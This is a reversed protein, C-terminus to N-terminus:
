IIDFLNTLLYNAKEDEFYIDNSYYIKFLYKYVNTERLRKMDYYNPQGNVDLIEYTIDDMIRKDRYEVFLKFGKRNYINITKNNFTLRFFLEDTKEKVSYQVVKTVLLKNSYHYDHYDTGMTLKYLPTDKQVEMHKDSDVCYECLIGRTSCHYYKDFTPIKFFEFYPNFLDQNNGIIFCRYDKRDRMITSVFELFAITENKLYRYTGKPLIIAEDYIIDEVDPFDVSKFIQAISLPISYGIVKKNFEYRFTGNGNKIAKVGDVYKVCLDETLKTETKYRRVYIFQSGNKIANKISRDLINTTKGIGRGGVTIILNANYSLAKNPSYYIGEKNSLKFHPKM